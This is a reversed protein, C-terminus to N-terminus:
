CSDKRRLLDAVDALMEHDPGNRAVWSRKAMHYGSPGQHCDYCLPIVRWDSRPQGDGTVHHAQSPPPAGCVMCPLEKVAAMHAWAGGSKERAKRRARKASLPRLPKRDVMGWKARM